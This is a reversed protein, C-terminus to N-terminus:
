EKSRKYQISLGVGILVLLLAVMFVIMVAGGSSFLNSLPLSSGSINDAADIMSGSSAGVANFIIVITIIVIFIGIIINYDDAM